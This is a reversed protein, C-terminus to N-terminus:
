NDPFAAAARDRHFVPRLDVELVPAGPLRHDEAVPPRQRGIRPFVLHHKEPLVPIPADCVIAATM